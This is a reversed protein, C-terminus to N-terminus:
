GFVRFFPDRAEVIPFIPRGDLDPNNLVEKTTDLDHVVMVHSSGYYIGLIKTGYWKALTTTALHLHKYNIALLFFYSGFIPIKPPGSIFITLATM